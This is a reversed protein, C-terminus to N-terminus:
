AAGIGRLIRRWALTVGQPEPPRKQWCAWLTRAYALGVRHLYFSSSGTESSRNIWSIPVEVIDYGALLPKLGTELNASFHPSNIQM